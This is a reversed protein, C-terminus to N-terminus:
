GIPTNEFDQIAIRLYEPIRRPKFDKNSVCVLVTNGKAIRIKGGNKEKVVEYLFNFSSNRVYEIKTFIRLDDDYRAPNYYKCNSEVVMFYFGNEEIDVYNHGINKLYETRAVEFFVFYKGYYVVSMADTEEYRVKLETYFKFNDM